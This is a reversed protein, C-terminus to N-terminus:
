MVEKLWYRAWTKVALMVDTREPVWTTAPGTVYPVPRYEARTRKRVTKRTRVRKQRGGKEPFYEGHIILREPTPSQKRKIKVIKSFTEDASEDSTTWEVGAVTFESPKKRTMKRMEVESTSEDTKVTEDFSVSRKQLKRRSTKDTVDYSSPRPRHTVRKVKEPKELKEPIDAFTVSAVSTVKPAEPKAPKTVKVKTEFSPKKFPVPKTVSSVETVFPKSEPESDPFEVTYTQKEYPKPKPLIAETLVQPKVETFFEKPKRGKVEIEVTEKQFPKPKPFMPSTTELRRKEIVVEKEFTDEFPIPKFVKTDFTDKISPKPGPKSVQIEIMQKGLQRSQSLDTKFTKVEFTKARSVVSEFTEKEQPASTVVVTEFTEVKPPGTVKMEYIQKEFPKPKPFDIEFTQEKFPTTKFIEAAYVQKEPKEKSVQTEYIQTEYTRIKSIMSEFTQMAESVQIDFKREELPQSVDMEVMQKHYPKPKTVDVEFTQREDTKSEREFTMSELIETEFSPREYPKPKTFLSIRETPLETKTELVSM